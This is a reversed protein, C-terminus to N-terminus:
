RWGWTGYMIRDMFLAIAFVIAMQVIITGPSEYVLVPPSLYVPIM